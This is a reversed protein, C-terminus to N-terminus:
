SLTTPTMYLALSHFSTTGIEGTIEVICGVTEPLERRDLVTTFEQVWVMGEENITYIMKLLEAESVVAYVTRIMLSHM